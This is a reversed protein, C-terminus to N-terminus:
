SASNQEPSNRNRLAFWRSDSTPPRNYLVHAYALPREHARGKVRVCEFGVIEFSSNGQRTLPGTVGTSEGYGQVRSGIFVGLTGLLLFFVLFSDVYEGSM